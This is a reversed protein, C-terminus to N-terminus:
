PYQSDHIGSVPVRFFHMIRNIRLPINKLEVRTEAQIFRNRIELLETLSDFDMATVGSLDIDLNEVGTDWIEELATRTKKRQDDTRLDGVLAVTDQHKV